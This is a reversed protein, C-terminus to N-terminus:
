PIEYNSSKGYGCTCYTEAYHGDKQGLENIWYHKVHVVRHDEGRLNALTKLLCHWNIRLLKM